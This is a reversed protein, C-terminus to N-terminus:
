VFARTYILDTSASEKTIVRTQHVNTLTSVHSDMRTLGLPVPRVFLLMQHPVISERQLLAMTVLVIIKLAFATQPRVAILQQAPEKAVCRANRVHKTPKTIGTPVSRVFIPMTHPVISERQLVVMPVPVITKLVFM